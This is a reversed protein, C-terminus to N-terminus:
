QSEGTLLVTHDPLTIGSFAVTLHAKGVLRTDVTSEVRTPIAVGDRIEYERVFEVKKLFISPNKVFKGSEKLPLFTVSDIWLEGQFLGVRKKRPSLQFIHALRGGANQMGKYKFKYNEPNIAISTLQKPSREESEAAMYRAIVENKISRDGDFRLAEYTIRGIESIRRLAHLKGQTKLRPVEAEIEVEMSAGQLRPQQSRSAAVYRDVISEQVNRAPEAM